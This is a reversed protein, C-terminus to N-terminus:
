FTYNLEELLIFSPDEDVLIRAGGPKRRLSINCGSKGGGSSIGQTVLFIESVAASYILVYLLSVAFGGRQRKHGSYESDCPSAHLCRLFV